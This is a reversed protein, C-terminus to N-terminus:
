STGQQLKAKLIDDYKKTPSPEAASEDIDIQKLLDEENLAVVQDPDIRWKVNNRRRSVVTIVALGVAGGIVPYWWLALNFGEMRPIALVTEGYRNSMANVIEEQTMGQNIMNGLEAKMNAAVDCTMQTECVGLVYNCGCTCFFDRSLTDVNLQGQANAVPLAVQLSILPFAV